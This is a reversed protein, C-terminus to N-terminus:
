QIDTQGTFQQQWDSKLLYSLILSDIWFQTKGLKEKGLGAVEVCSLKNELM